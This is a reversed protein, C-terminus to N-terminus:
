NSERWYTFLNWLQKRDLWLLAKWKRSLTQLKFRELPFSLTVEEGPLRTFSHIGWNDLSLPSFTNKHSILGKIIWYIVIVFCHTGVDCICNTKWVYWYSSLISRWLIVSDQILFFTIFYPGVFIFHFFRPIESTELEYLLSHRCHIKQEVWLFFIDKRLCGTYLNSEVWEDIDWSSTM